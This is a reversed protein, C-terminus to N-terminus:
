ARDRSWRGVGVRFNRGATVLGRMESQCRTSMSVSSVGLLEGPWYSAAASVVTGAAAEGQGKVSWGGMDTSCGYNTIM